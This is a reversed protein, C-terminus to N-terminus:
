SADERAGSLILADSLAAWGLLACKIRAPYRSVGTFAMADGLADAAEDDDLGAGRSGMLERFSAALRDVTPLDQGVVLDRLVSISAQSISCGQGEWRVDEVRPLDESRDVDVRLTVEDGCTPNVQHSIGCGPHPATALATTGGSGAPLGRGHPYKSHDLIVQQYMQELANSL